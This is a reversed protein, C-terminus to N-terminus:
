LADAFTPRLSSFLASGLLCLLLAGALAGIINTMAFPLDAGMIAARYGEVVIAMPNLAALWRWDQPVQKLPWVIPTLWFWITVLFPTLSGMDRVIVNVSSVILAIGCSLCFGLLIWIPLFLASFSLRGLYAMVALAIVALALHVLFAAVVSALPLLAVPFVTKKVLHPARIVSSTSDGVADAFALWPLLGIVLALGYDPGAAARMGLGIDLAFWMVGMLALPPFLAWLLGGASGAYRRQLESRALYLLLPLRQFM